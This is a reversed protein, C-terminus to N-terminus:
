VPYVSTYAIMTTEEKECGTSGLLILILSIVFLISKKM